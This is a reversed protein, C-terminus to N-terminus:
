VGLCQTGKRDGGVVRMTVTSTNLGIEVCGTIQFTPILTKSSYRGRDEPYFHLCLCYTEGFCCLTMIWGVMFNTLLEMFKAVLKRGCMASYL